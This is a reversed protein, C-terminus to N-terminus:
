GLSYVMEGGVLTHHVRGPLEYGIFPTNKSQSRLSERTVPWRAVPDFLTLDAPAGVAIRGAPIGLIGAPKSTIKSLAQVLPVQETEAWHLTLPLLLEISSAGPSSEGFPVQKGDDPVPTHDSCLADVAGDDLGRLLAERDRLSRLPPRVHCNADFHGIDLDTLHAHLVGVDCTAKLGDFRARRLMALGDATSLRCIHLRTDCSRALLILTALAVTEACAPIPPLGLRTAVEGEHAVGEGVLHPDEPRLWVAIDFTAAYKLASLLVANSALPREGQSFAVCGASRLEVMESLREGRLGQTLAGLPYLRALRLSRARQRMMDVLGPEDLPPDTDPPCVLSTVGGSVAANLESELTARYEYGPERLRVSLDVLGPCVVLGGADLTRAAHFGAPADGIGVIAEGAVFVDCVRDLKSAPDIVRGGAIRLSM